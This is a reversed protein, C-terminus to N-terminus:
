DKSEQTTGCESDGNVYRWRDFKKYDEFDQRTLRNYRKKGIQDALQFLEHLEKDELEM